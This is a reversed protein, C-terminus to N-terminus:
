SEMGGHLDPVFAQVNFVKAGGVPGPDVIDFHRGMGIVEELMSIHNCKAPELDLREDALILGGRWVSLLFFHRVIDDQM